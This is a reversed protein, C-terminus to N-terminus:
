AHLNHYHDHCVKKHCPQTFSHTYTYMHLHKFTYAHTTHTQTHTHAEYRQSVGSVCLAAKAMATDMTFHAIRSKCDTHQLILLQSNQTIASSYLNVHLQKELTNMRERVPLTKYQRTPHTYWIELDTSIKHYFLCWSKLCSQIPQYNRKFILMKLFIKITGM